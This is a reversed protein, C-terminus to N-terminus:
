RRKKGTWSKYRGAISWNDEQRFVRPFYIDEASSYCEIAAIIAALKDASLININEVRDISQSEEVGPNVFRIIRSMIVIILALGALSFVVFGMGLVTLILGDNM